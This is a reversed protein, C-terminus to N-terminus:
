MDSAAPDPGGGAWPRRWGLPGALRSAGGVLPRRWGLAAALPMRARTRDLPDGDPPCGQPGHGAWRHAPLDCRRPGAPHALCAANACTL